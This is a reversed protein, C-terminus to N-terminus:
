HEIVSGNMNVSFRDIEIKGSGNVIENGLEIGPLCWGPDLNVRDLLKKVDVFHKSQLQPEGKLLFASYLRGDPMTYSYLAYTNHGDSVDGKYFEPPQGFTHQLWIMVEAKRVAEASSKDRDLLFFDYSFNYAGTPKQPYNYNVQFSLSQLDKMKLPFDALNSQERHNGGIRVSPYIPLLINGGAKVQPEPRDWYWGFKKGPDLYVGTTLKEEPPAGWQNNVLKLSDFKISDGPKMTTSVSNTATATSSNVLDRPAQSLKGAIALDPLAAKSLGGNSSHADLAPPVPLLSHIDVAQAPLFAESAVSSVLMLFLISVYIALKGSRSKM